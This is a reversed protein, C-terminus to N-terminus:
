FCEPTPIPKCVTLQERATELLNLTNWIGDRDTVWDGASASIICDQVTDGKFLYHTAEDETYTLLQFLASFLPLDEAM